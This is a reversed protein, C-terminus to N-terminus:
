LPSLTSLLRSDGTLAPYSLGGTTLLPLRKLPIPRTMQTGTLTIDIWIIDGTEWEAATPKCVPLYLTVGQLHLPFTLTTSDNDPNQVILAHMNDTPFHTLFQPVNNVTMDNIWCQMPCLLHHDLQPMHIAQHFVLHYVQGDRSHDCALVGSVMEFTQLGQQPDYGVVEVPQDYSQVILAGAGLVTTDAHSDLELSSELPNNSSM